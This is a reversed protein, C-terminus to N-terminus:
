TFDTNKAEESLIKLSYELETASEELLDVDDAFRLYNIRTGHVSIGSEREKSKDMARELDAIFVTPSIPDGQRTGRNTIFWQGIEGDVRVAAQSTGNIDRLLDTLKHDVGYSGLTVWTIEQDVSDFAKKFDV